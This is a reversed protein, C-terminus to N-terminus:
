FIHPSSPGERVFSAFNISLFISLMFHPISIFFARFDEYSIRFVVFVRFFQFCMGYRQISLSLIEFTCIIGSSIQLNLMIGILICTLNKPFKVVNDQPENSLVCVYFCHMCKKYCLPFKKCWSARFLGGGVEALVIM